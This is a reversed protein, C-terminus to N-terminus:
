AQNPLSTASQSWMVDPDAYHPAHPYLFWPTTNQLFPPLHRPPPAVSESGPPLFSTWRIKAFDCLVVSRPGGTNLVTAFGTQFRVGTPLRMLKPKICLDREGIM